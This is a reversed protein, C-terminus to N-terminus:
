EKEVESTCSRREDCRTGHLRVAAVADSMSERKGNQRIKEARIKGKMRSQAKDGRTGDEEEGGRARIEIRLSEM